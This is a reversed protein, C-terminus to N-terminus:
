SEDIPRLTCAPYLAGIESQHFVGNKIDAIHLVSDVDLAAAVQVPTAAPGLRSVSLVAWAGETGGFHREEAERRRKFFLFFSEM